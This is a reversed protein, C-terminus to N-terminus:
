QQHVRRCLGNWIWLKRALGFDSSVVVDPYEKIYITDCSRLINFQQQQQELSSWVISLM